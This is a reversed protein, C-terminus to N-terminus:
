KNCDMFRVVGFIFWIYVMLRPHYHHTLTPLVTIFTGNWPLTKTAPLATCILLCPTCPFERYKGSKSATFRFSMYFIFDTKCFSFSFFFFVCSLSCSSQTFPPICELTLCWFQRHFFIYVCFLSGAM